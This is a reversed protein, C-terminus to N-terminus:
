GAKTISQVERCRPYNQCGYFPQGKHDGQSATRLVMPIGCKHCLPVSGVQRENSTSQTAAPPGEKFLQSLRSAIDQSNYERQVLMHLLPLGAALFVKDVFEDRKQRVPQNHSADDLEIGVVPKMTNPNCLLFDVHRQSIRNLFSINGNPRAVFFIDALRVKSLITLRSGLLSSLVKFFSFEAPSLFDDRLRYPLIEPQVTKSRKFFSLFTALCGPRQDANATM